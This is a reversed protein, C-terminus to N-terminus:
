KREEKGAALSRRKRFREMSWRLIPDELGRFPIHGHLIAAHRTSKAPQKPNYFSALASWNGRYPTIGPYRATGPPVPGMSPGFQRFARVLRDKPDTEGRVATEELYRLAIPNTALYRVLGAYSKYWPTGPIFGRRGVENYYNWLNGYARMPIRRMYKAPDLGAAELERRHWESLLGLQYMVAPYEAALRGRDISFRSPRVHSLFWDRSAAHFLEHGLILYPHEHYGRGAGSMPYYVEAVVSNVPSWGGADDPYYSWQLPDEDIFPLEGFWLKVAPTRASRRPIIQAATDKMFRRFQKSFPGAARGYLPLDEAGPLDAANILLQVRRPDKWYDYYLNDADSGGPLEGLRRALLKFDAIPITEGKGGTFAWTRLGAPRLHGLQTLHKILNRVEVGRTARLRTALENLSNPHNSKKDGRDKHMGSWGPPPVPGYAQKVLREYWKM